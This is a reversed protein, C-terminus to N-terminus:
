FRPMFIEDPYPLRFNVYRMFKLYMRLDNRYEDFSGIERDKFAHIANRRWQIHLIWEDWSDEPKWIRKNFFQRMQELELQDPEVLKGRKKVQEVDNLYDKYFVSLLLKMTGEVLSGLNSWALILRGDAEESVTEELWLNLCHSLSVQWDLRSRTLLDAAEPPAWGKASSWFDRLSYNFDIIRGVVEKLSMEQTDDFM